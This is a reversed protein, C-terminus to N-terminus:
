ESVPEFLPVAVAVIVTVVAPVPVNVVVLRAFGPFVVMVILEKDDPDVEKFPEGSQLLVMVVLLVEVILTLRGVAVMEPVVVTQLFEVEGSM